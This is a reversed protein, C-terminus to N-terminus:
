ATGELKEPCRSRHRTEQTRQHDNRGDRQTASPHLDERLDRRKKNEKLYDRLRGLAKDADTMKGEVESLKESFQTYKVKAEIKGRTLQDLGAGMNRM